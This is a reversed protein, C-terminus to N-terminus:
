EYFIYIYIQTLTHTHSLSYLTHTNHMYPNMLKTVVTIYRGHCGGDDVWGEEELTMNKVVTQGDHSDHVLVQVFGALLPTSVTPVTAGMVM